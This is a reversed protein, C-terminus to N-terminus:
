DSVVESLMLVFVAIVGQVIRLPSCIVIIHHTAYFLFFTESIFMNMNNALQDQADIMESICARIARM